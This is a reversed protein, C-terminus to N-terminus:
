FLLSRSKSVHLIKKLNPKQTKNLQSANKGETNMRRLRGREKRGEGELKAADKEDNM